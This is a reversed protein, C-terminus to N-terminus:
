WRKLGGGGGTLKREVATIKRSYNFPAANDQYSVQLSGLQESSTAREVIGIPDVGDAISLAVVFQLQKLDDPIETRLYNFSDIYVNERPWQLSQEKSYRAGIFPLTELYDMAMLLAAGTEGTITVARGLAWATFEAEAVYTNAGTVVTGDEVILAM